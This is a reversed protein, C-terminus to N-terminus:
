KHWYISFSFQNFKNKIYQYRLEDVFARMMTLGLGGPNVEDLSNPLRKEEKDLPNFAIGSDSVTVSAKNIHDMFNLELHLTTPFALAQEGGHEIINALVENLCIALREIQASPVKALVLTDSLWDSAIRISPTETKISLVAAFHHPKQKTM